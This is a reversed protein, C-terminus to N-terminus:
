QGNNLRIGVNKSENTSILDEKVLLYGRAAVDVIGNKHTLLISPAEESVKGQENLNRYAANDRAADAYDIYVPHQLYRQQLQHKNNFFHTLTITQSLEGNSASGSPNNLNINLPKKLKGWGEGFAFYIRGNGPLVYVKEVDGDKIFTSYLKPLLGSMAHGPVDKFYLFVADYGTNNTITVSDNVAAGPDDGFSDFPQGGTKLKQPTVILNQKKSLSDLV